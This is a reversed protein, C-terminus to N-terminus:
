VMIILTLKLILIFLCLIARYHRELVNHLELFQGSTPDSFCVTPEQPEKKSNIFRQLSCLLQSISQPTYEYMDSKRVETVFVCLWYCVLKNDDTTLVNVLCKDSAISNREQVWATFAHVAWMTSRETNKTLEKKSSNLEDM